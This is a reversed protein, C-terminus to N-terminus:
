VLRQSLKQWIDGFKILIDHQMGNSRKEKTNMIPLIVNTPTAQVRFYWPFINQIFLDIVDRMYLHHPRSYMPYKIYNNSLVRLLQSSISVYWTFVNFPGEEIKTWVDLPGLVGNYVFLKMIDYSTIGQKGWWIIYWPPSSLWLSVLYCYTQLIFFTGKIFLNTSHM